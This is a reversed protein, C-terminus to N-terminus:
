EHKNEKNLKMLSLRFEKQKNLNIQENSLAISHAMKKIAIDRKEKAIKIHANISEKIINEKSKMIYAKIRNTNIGVM